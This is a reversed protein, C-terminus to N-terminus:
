IFTEEPYSKLIKYLKPEGDSCSVEVDVIYFKDQWDIEDNSTMIDQKDEDNEFIVKLPERWINEIVGRNGSKKGGFNAQHWKFLQKNKIYQNENILQDKTKKKIEKAESATFNCGVYVNSNIISEANVSLNGSNVVSLVNNLKKLTKATAVPLSYKQMMKATEEKNEGLISKKLSILYIVFQILNHVNTFIPIPSSCFSALLDIVISGKNIERVFLRAEKNNNNFEEYLLQLNGMAVTLDYLDIPKQYDIKIVLKVDDGSYNVDMNNGKFISKIFNIGIM